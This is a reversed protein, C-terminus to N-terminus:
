NKLLRSPAKLRGALDILMEKAEELILRQGKPDCKSLDAIVVQPANLCSYKTSLARYTVRRTPSAHRRAKFQLPRETIVLLLDEDLQETAAKYDTWWLETLPKTPPRASVIDYAVSTYDDEYNPVPLHIVEYTKHEYDGM